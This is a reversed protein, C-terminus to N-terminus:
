NAKWEIESSDRVAPNGITYAFIKDKCPSNKTYEVTAIGNEDTKVVKIMNNSTVPVSFTNINFIVQVGPTKEGIYAKLIVNEGTKLSESNALLKITGSQNDNKSKENKVGVQEKKDVSSDEQNKTTLKENEKQETNNTIVEDIKEEKDVTDTATISSGAEVEDVKSSQNNDSVETQNQGSITDKKDATSVSDKAASTSPETVEPVNKSDDNNNLVGSEIISQNSIIGTDAKVKMYNVGNTFTISGIIVCCIGTIVSIRNCDKKFRKIMNIRSRIQNKTEFFSALQIKKYSNEISRSFNILTMGYEEIKEEGIIELVDADCACERDLKIKKMVFWVVPNFWHLITVLVELLNYFLHKKKYHILEHLLIYELQNVNDMKLIEKPLYIRPRIWGYICPTKLSNCTYIPISKSIKLKSKCRELISDIDENNLKKLLRTERKIMLTMISFSLLMICIGLLWIYCSINIIYDVSGKVNEYKTKSINNVLQSNYVQQVKMNINKENNDKSDLTQQKLFSNASIGFRGDGVSTNLIYNLPLANFISFRSEPAIIMLFRIIVLFWIVHHMRAGLRHKVIKKFLVVFSTIISGTLSAYLVGLFLKPFIDM